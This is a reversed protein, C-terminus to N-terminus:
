NFPMFYSNVRQKTLHICVMVETPFAKVIESALFKM